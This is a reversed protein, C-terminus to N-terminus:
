DLQQLALLVAEGNELVRIQEKVTNSNEYDSEYYGKAKVKKGFLIKYNFSFYREDAEIKSIEVIIGQIIM